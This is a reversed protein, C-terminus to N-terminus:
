SLSDRTAFADWVFEAVACVVEKCSSSMLARFHTRADDGLGMLLAQKNSIAKSMMRGRIDSYKTCEM